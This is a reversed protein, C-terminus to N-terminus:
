WRRWAFRPQGMPKFADHSMIGEAASGRAGVSKGFEEAASFAKSIFFGTLFGALGWLITGKNM